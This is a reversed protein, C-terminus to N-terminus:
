GRTASSHRRFTDRSKSRLRGIGWRAGTNASCRCQHVSGPQGGAKRPPLAPRVRGAVRRRALGCPGFLRARSMRATRGSTTATSGWSSTSAWRDAAYSTARGASSRQHQASRLMRSANSATLVQIQVLEHGDQHGWGILGLRIALHQCTQADLAPPPSYRGLRDSQRPLQQPLGLGATVVVPVVAITASFGGAKAGSTLGRPRLAASTLACRLEENSESVQRLLVTRQQVVVPLTADACSGSRIAIAPASDIRVAM